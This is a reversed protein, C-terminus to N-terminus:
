PISEVIIYYAVNRASSDGNVILINSGSISIDPKKSNNSTAIVFADTITAGSKYFGYYRFFVGQNPTTYNVFITGFTNDPMTYVSGSTANGALAVIGTVKTPASGLPTLQYDNAGNYFRLQTQSSTDLWSYLLANTGTPLDGPIAIPHAIMTIQKHVGDTSQATDNFVHDANIITKLRSFNTANQAPFLDPSQSANPVNPDFTM